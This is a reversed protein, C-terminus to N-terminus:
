ECYLTIGKAEPQTNHQKHFPTCCVIVGSCVCEPPQCSTPNVYSMRCDLKHVDVCQLLCSKYSFKVVLWSRQSSTRIPGCSCWHTHMSQTYSYFRHLIIVLAVTSTDCLLHSTPLSAMFLEHFSIHSHTQQITNPLQLITSIASTPFCRLIELRCISWRCTFHGLNM